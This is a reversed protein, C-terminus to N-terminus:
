NEEMEKKIKRFYTATDSILFPEWGKEHMYDMLVESNNGQYLAYHKGESLEQLAEELEEEAETKQPEVIKEENTEEKHKKNGFM